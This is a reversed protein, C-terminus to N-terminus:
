EDTGNFYRDMEQQTAGGCRLFGIQTVKTHGDLWSIIVSKPDFRGWLQGQGRADGPTPYNSWAYTSNVSGDVAFGGSPPIVQYYGVPNTIVPRGPSTFDKATAEAFMIASAPSNISSTPNGIWEPGQSGNVRHNLYHVNMGYSPYQGYVYWYIPNKKDFRGGLIPDDATDNPCIFIDYSKIYNQVLLPYGFRCPDTPGPGFCASPYQDGLSESRVGIETAPFMVDENDGLYLMAAISSQKVNSLSATKKAAQKAQAFVPFLIAALIAIIAIVVLLEILTFARRWSMDDNM